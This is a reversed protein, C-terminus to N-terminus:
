KHFADTCLASGKVRSPFLWGDVGITAQRRWAAQLARGRSCLAGDRSSEGVQGDRRWSIVRRELDVDSWRLTIVSNLRHGTEHCLVLALELRVEVNAAATLLAAYQEPTSMPQRPNKEAPVMQGRLPNAQLWFQGREEKQKTGWNLVALLWRLDHEM